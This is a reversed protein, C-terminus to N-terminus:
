ARLSALWDNFFERQNEVSAPMVDPGSDFIDVLDDRSAPKGLTLRYARGGGAMERSMRSPYVDLSAGYCFPILGISQLKSRVECFADFLDDGSGVFEQGRASFTLNYKGFSSSQSLVGFEDDAGGILFIERDTM